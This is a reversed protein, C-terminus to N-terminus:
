RPNLRIPIADDRGFLAGILQDAWGYKELMLENIADREEPAPIASYTASTEGRLVEVRPQASLRVYWGQVEAGSRLWQTDDRDVIWVRTEHANGEADSTTLVVVEGSESAYYQAAGVVVLLVVLFGITRLLFNM